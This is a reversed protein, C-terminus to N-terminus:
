SKNWKEELFRARGSGEKYLGYRVPNTVSYNQHYSEAPYFNKFPEIATKIPADFTKSDELAQKSAKALQREEDTRYFCIPKYHHGRDNFQGGDDTPDHAKWFADLLDNYSTIEPNYYIQVAEVHGTTDSCVQEYTPKKVDGGSYGSIAAEVGKLARFPPEMCWFCGGAFTAAKLKPDTDLPTLDPFEPTM